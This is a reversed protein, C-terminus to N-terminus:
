CNVASFHETDLHVAAAEEFGTVAVVNHAPLRVVPVAALQAPIRFLAYPDNVLHCIWSSIPRPM